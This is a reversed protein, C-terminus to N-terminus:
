VRSIALGAVTAAAKLDDDLTAMAGGLRMAVALHLADGACLSVTGFRMLQRAAAFDGAGVDIQRVQPSSLWGDFAAEAALRDQANLAGRRRQLALASSFETIAWSSLVLLDGQRLLWADARSSHIDNSFLSVAVCADVYTNL